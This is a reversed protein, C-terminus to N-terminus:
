NSPTVPPTVVPTYTVTKTLTTTLGYINTASITITNPGSVLTLTQNFAGTNSIAVSNGNVTLTLPKGSSDSATGSLILAANSVSAPVESLNLLPAAPSFNVTKQYVASLGSDSTVKLYFNNAGVVLTPNLMIEYQGNGKSVVPLSVSNLTATISKGGFDTITFPWSTNASTVNDPMNGSIVPANPAFTVSLTTKTTKSDPNTVEVSFNNVGNSLSVPISVVGDASAVYAKSNVKIALFQPNYLADTVNFTLTYDSKTASSASTMKIVPASTNYSIVKTITTVKNRSNVIKFTLANDGKNLTYTITKNKNSYVTYREDNIYLYVYSDYPDVIKVDFSIQATSSTTPLNLITLTTAASELTVYYKNKTVQGSANVAEITIENLGEKLTLTPTYYESFLARNVKEGNVKVYSLANNSDSVKFKLSLSNSTVKEPISTSLTIVPASATYTVVRTFTEKKLNPYTVTITLTYTGTQDLKYTGTYNTGSYSVAKDNIVLGSNAPLKISIPIQPSTVSNPINIETTYSTTSSTYTNKIIKYVMASAQARTVPAAPKLTGNPFGGILQNKVALAVEDRLNPSVDSADSFNLYKDPSISTNKDLSLARVLAVAVDERTAKGEPDFTPKGNPPFYGTLYEKTAEVYAYSWRSADVDKFSPTSPRVEDLGFTKFLIVAFEERSIGNEPAFNGNAYGSLIGNNVLAQIYETAWYDTKIDKFKHSDAMAISPLMGIIMAFALLLATIRKFKM